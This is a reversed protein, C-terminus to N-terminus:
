NTLKKCLGIDGKQMVSRSLFESLICRSASLSCHLLLSRRDLLADHFFQQSISHRVFSFSSFIFAALSKARTRKGRVFVRLISLHPRVHHAIVISRSPGIGREKWRAERWRARALDEIKACVIDFKM